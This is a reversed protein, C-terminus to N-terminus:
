VPPLSKGWNRVVALVDAEDIVGNGNWDLAAIYGPSGVTQGLANQVMWRADRDYTGTGLLDGFLRSFTTTSNTQMAGGTAADTIYGANITLTYRGDPVSGGIVNPGTFAIALVTVGNVTEPNLNLLISQGTSSTVSVAGSQLLVQRSFTVTLSTVMSRQAAGNNVVVSSVTPYVMPDVAPPNPPVVPPSTAPVPFNWEWLQAHQVGNAASFYLAGDFYTGKYFGAGNVYYGYDLFSPTSPLTFGTPLGSPDVWASQGTLVDTVWLQGSNQFVLQGDPHTADPAFATDYVSPGSTGAPAVVEMTGGATGDTLWYNVPSIAGSTYSQTITSLSGTVILLKGGVDQISLPQDATGGLSVDVRHTGVSTGNTVWLGSTTPDPSDVLFYLQNGMSVFNQATVGSTDPINAILQVSSQNLGDSVWLSTPNAAPLAYQDPPIAHVIVGPSVEIGAPLDYSQPEGDTPLPPAPNTNLPVQVLTTGGPTGDTVWVDPISTWNIVQETVTVEGNAVGLFPDPIAEEPNPINQLLTNTTGNTIWLQPNQMYIDTTLYYLDGNLGLEDGVEYYTGITEGAPIAPVKVTGAATGDSRWLANGTGDNATFYIVGDGASIFDMPNSGGLGPKIQKVMHVDGATGNTAYLEYGHGDDASFFLTNGSVTLNLPYSGWIGHLDTVMSASPVEREELQQVQLHSQRRM